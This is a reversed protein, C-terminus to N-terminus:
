CVHVLCDSSDHRARVVQSDQCWAFRGCWNTVMAESFTRQYDWTPGCKPRQMNVPPSEPRALRQPSGTGLRAGIWASAKEDKVRDQRHDDAVNHERAM